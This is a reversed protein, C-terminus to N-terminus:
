NQTLREHVLQVKIQESIVRDKTRDECRLIVVRFCLDPRTM